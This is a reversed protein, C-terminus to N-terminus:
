DLLRSLRTEEEASLTRADPPHRRRMLLVAGLGIFLIPAGWLMMTHWAFRPRMLVYEGYREVVFARVEADSDGAKLRDRVLVRLDRAIGADSDDITQNQCVVCRLEQSIARARAELATDALREDPNVAMAPGALLCLLLALRIM